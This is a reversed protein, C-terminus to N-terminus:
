YRRQYYFRYVSEMASILHKLTYLPPPSYAPPASRDLSAPPVRLSSPCLGSRESASGGGLEATGAHFRDSLDIACYMEGRPKVPGTDHMPSPPPPPPAAKKLLSRWIKKESGALIHTIDLMDVQLRERGKDGKFHFPFCWCQTLYM